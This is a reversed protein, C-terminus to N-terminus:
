LTILKILEGNYLFTPQNAVQGAFRRISFNHGYYMMQSKLTYLPHHILHALCAATGSVGFEKVTSVMTSTIVTSNLLPPSQRFKSQTAAVPLTTTTSSINKSM